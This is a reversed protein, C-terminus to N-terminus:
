RSPRGNMMPLLGPFDPDGSALLAEYDLGGVLAGSTALPDDIDIILPPNQMKACAQAVVDGLERDVLILKAEGHGLIFAVAEPDLRTNIANLVAGAMPVGFSAEVFAPINPAMIAVTDNREIGRAILASALRRCRAQMERYSTKHLGHLIATRDPYVAATRNLFSLPTLPVHNAANKELGQSYAKTM